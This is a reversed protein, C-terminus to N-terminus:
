CEVISSVELRNMNVNNKTSRYLNLFMDILFAMAKSYKKLLCIIFKVLTAGGICTSQRAVKFTRISNNNTHVFNCPSKRM